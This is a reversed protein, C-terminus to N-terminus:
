GPSKKAEAALKSLEIGNNVVETRIAPNDTLFKILDAGNETAASFDTMGNWDAVCAAAFEVAVTARDRKARKDLAIAMASANVGEDWRNYAAAGPNKVVFSHATGEIALGRVAGGITAEAEDVRRALGFARAETLAEDEASKERELEARQEAEARDADSLLGKAKATAAKQAALREAITAAM